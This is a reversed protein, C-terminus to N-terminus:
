MLRSGRTLSTQGMCSQLSSDAEAHRSGMPRAPKKPIPASVSRARALRHQVGWSGSAMEPALREGGLRECRRPVLPMPCSTRLWTSVPQRTESM